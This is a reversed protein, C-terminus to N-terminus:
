IVVNEHLNEEWYIDSRIEQRGTKNWGLALATPLKTKIM